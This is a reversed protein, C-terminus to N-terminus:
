RATGTAQRQPPKSDKEESRMRALLQVLTKRDKGDTELVHILDRMQIKAGLETKELSGGQFQRRKALLARDTQQQVPTASGSTSGIAPNARPTSTGSAAGGTMWSYKKKGGLAMSATENAKRHLVDETQGAKNIRDREKKTLKEPLPLPTIPPLESATVSNGQLRKQRKLIRAREFKEDEEIKRKLANTIHNTVVQVTPQPTLPADSPPTPLRAANPPEIATLVTFIANLTYLERKQATVTMPSVAGDPAEWATKSINPVVAETRQLGGNAVALDALNPPVVGHSSTQRGQALAFADEVVTRVREETALSLLSLFEVLPANHNLLSTAQLGVIAEDGGNINHRTVNSPVNEPIKDFLGDLDIKIGHEYARRAMRQRLVAAFLFPDALPQSSTENLIRAAEQHKRVLEAEQQEKTVPQSLPGTGQFAGHNSQQSWQNFSGQPSATSNQSNFSTDHNRMTINLMFDEEDRLIIGSNTLVDTLSAPDSDKPNAKELETPEQTKSYPVRPPPM